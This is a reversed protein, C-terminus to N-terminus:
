AYSHLGGLLHNVGLYTIIVTVFALLYYTARFRGSALPALMRRHLPLSYAILTILAWIEKPDWGWYRGWSLRAWVAGIFIGATLLNVAPRLLSDAVTLARVKGAIRLAGCVAMIALLGYALMVCAVHIILLPSRLIMLSHSREISATLQWGAWVMVCLLAFTVAPRKIIQALSKPKLTFIMSILLLVYASATIGWGIPDSSVALILGRGDSDFATQCLQLGHISAPNNVTATATDGDVVMTATVELPTAGDADYKVDVDTLTVAHRGVFETLGERLHLTQSEGWIHTALAGVLILLLSLHLLLLAPRRYLRRHMIYYVSTVAVGSWGAIFPASSYEQAPFGM